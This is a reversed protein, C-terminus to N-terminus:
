DLHGGLVGSTLNNGRSHGAYIFRSKESRTKLSDTCVESLGANLVPKIKFTTM